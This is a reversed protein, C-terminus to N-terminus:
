GKKDFNPLREKVQTYCKRIDLGEGRNRLAYVIELDSIYGLQRARLVALMDVLNENCVDKYLMWIDSGYIQMDDLSLLVGLGDMAGDPDIIAGQKLINMCIHLAGPVGEALKIVVDQMTDKLTVRSM